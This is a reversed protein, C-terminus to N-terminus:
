KNMPMVLYTFSSDSIGHLVLPKHEGNFGLSLSDAGISQFCEVLYRHNFSIDIEDGKLVADLSLTNEGVHENKASLELLKKKPSLHFHVEHFTDSFITSIKLGSVFDQKLLTVETKFTSPIIQKYDPFSGEVVRSVVYMDDGSLSIQGKVASLKVDGKYDSFLRIIDVVNKFPILTQPFDSIKKVVVKKEALRFSDTAVFILHKQDYYVYVSSLEPKMSSTASAYWVSQLGKVLDPAPISVSVEDSTEPINPFDDASLLKIVTKSHNTSVSLTTGSSELTVNGGPPTQVLLGTFVDAPIAVMGEKLVRVVMESQVGLDLNTAKILLRGNKAEFLFCKLVPHNTNKGVVKEMKTLLETLKNKVCEIKM